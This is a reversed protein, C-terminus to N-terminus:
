NLWGKRRGGLFSPRERDPEPAGGAESPRLGAGQPGPGGHRQALIEDWKARTMRDCGLGNPQPGFALARAYVALDLAENRGRIKHWESVMRGDRRERPVLVEATLQGVYAEDAIDASLHIRGPMDDGREYAKLAKSLWVKLDHTGVFYLPVRFIHAGFKNKVDIWRPSSLIVADTSSSGKLGRWKKKRWVFRYAAQTQHGGTDIALADAPFSLGGSHPWSRQSQAELELWPGDTLLNGEIAGTEILWQEITLAHEGPGFGYLAWELRDDQTDVVFALRGVGRPVVGRAYDEAKEAVRASDIDSGHEEYSEGLWLNSFGKEAIPDGTAKLWEEWVKDWGTLLSSLSNIFYSPQRGPGSNTPLWRGNIVMGRQQWSDIRAGCCQAMYRAMFPASKEGELHEFRFDIESGCHPCPMVWIRQDGAEFSRDIRSAGRITPTSIVLKKHTGLRSFAVQRADLLAMPDGQGDLDQPWRDVEDALAFRVTKASLDTASNAGTLILRGGPFLKALTTSGLESRSRQPKIKAAIAPTSKIAPDLREQNFDRAAMITPQVIMMDDPETDILCLLWVLGMNSFGTQASKKVAVETWPADIKLCTLPEVIYPTLTLDLRQSKKPGVPVIFNDRGWEAPSAAPAPRIAAAYTALLESKAQALTQIPM